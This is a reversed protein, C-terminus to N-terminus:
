WIQSSLHHTFLKWFDETADSPYLLPLSITPLQTRTATGTAAAESPSPFPVPPIQPHHAVVHSVHTRLAAAEGNESTPQRPQALLLATPLMPTLLQGDTYPDAPCTPGLWWAAAQFSM